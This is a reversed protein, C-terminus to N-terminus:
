SKLELFITCKQHKIEKEPTKTQGENETKKRALSFITVKKWFLRSSIDM